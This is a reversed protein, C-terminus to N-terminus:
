DRFHHIANHLISRNRTPHHQVKTERLLGVQHRRKEVEEEGVPVVKLIKQMVSESISKLLYNKNM